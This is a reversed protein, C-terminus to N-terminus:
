LCFIILISRFLLIVFGLVKEDDDVNDAEILFVIINFSSELSMFYDSQHM